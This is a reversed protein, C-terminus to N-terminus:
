RSTRHHNLINTHTQLITAIWLHAMVILKKSIRRYISKVSIEIRQSRAGGILALMNFRANM